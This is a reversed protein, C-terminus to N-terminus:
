TEQPTYDHGFTWSDEVYPSGKLYRVHIIEDPLENQGRFENAFYNAAEQPTDIYAQRSM